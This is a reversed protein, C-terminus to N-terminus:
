GNTHFLIVGIDKRLTHCPMAKKTSKL